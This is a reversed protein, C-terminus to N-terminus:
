LRTSFRWRRRNAVVQQARYTAVFCVRWVFAPDVIVPGAALVQASAVMWIFLLVHISEAPPIGRGFTDPLDMRPTASM